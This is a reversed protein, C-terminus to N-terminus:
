SYNSLTLWAQILLVQGRPKRLFAHSPPPKIRDVVSRNVFEASAMQPSAETPHNPLATINKPNTTM